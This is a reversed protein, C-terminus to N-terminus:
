GENLPEVLGDMEIVEGVFGDEGEGEFEGERGGFGRAKELLWMPAGGSRKGVREAWAERM